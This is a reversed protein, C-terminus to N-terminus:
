DARLSYVACHSCARISLALGGQGVLMVSAAPGKMTPCRTARDSGSLHGAGAWPTLKATWPWRSASSPVANTAAGKNVAAAPV